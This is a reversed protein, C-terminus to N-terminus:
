PRQGPILKLRCERLFEDIPLRDFKACTPLSHTVFPEADGIGGAHVDGNCFPCKYYVNAQLVNM